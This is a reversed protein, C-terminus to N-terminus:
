RELIEVLEEKKKNLASKMTRKALALQLKSPSKLYLKMMSKKASSLGLKKGAKEVGINILKSKLNM